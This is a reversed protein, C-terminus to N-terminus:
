QYAEVYHEVLRDWFWADRGALASSAMEARRAPSDLLLLLGEALANADGPAVLVGSAGEHLMWRRDGVDGTIVPVGLVLSEVIKLPSRAQAILDDHVPDVSVTALGLYAPVEDPAVRGVFRVSGQLGITHVQHQLNDFDEGGGVLLLRVDPMARAVRHFASLLLDIAHSHRSLTGVYIVVPQDASLGLRQRLKATEFPRSFRHREVGNPVWILRSEPFGMRQYHRYMFQTNVSLARAWRAVGNEFYRVV